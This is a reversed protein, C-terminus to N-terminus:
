DHFFLESSPGKSPVMVISYAADSKGGSAQFLANPLKVDTGMTRNTSKVDVERNKRNQLKQRTRLNRVTTHMLYLLIVCINFILSMAFIASIMMRIMSAQGLLTADLGSMSTRRRPGDEYKLTFDCM